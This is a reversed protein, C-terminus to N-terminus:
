KKLGKKAHGCGVNSQKGQQRKATELHHRLGGQRETVSTKGDFSKVGQIKSAKWIDPSFRPHRHHHFL